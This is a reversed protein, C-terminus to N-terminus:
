KRFFVEVHQGHPLKIELLDSGSASDQVCELRGGWSGEWRAADVFATPRDLKIPEGAKSFVVLVEQDLYKRFVILAEKTNPLVHTDGYLFVMNDRRMKALEAVWNKVDTQEANLGDFQMMRRNDPDNGGPMGIEDGYYLCPVGPVTMLFGYLDKLRTYGEPGQNTIERTWGALKPDEDFRVGGDALSTYRARDQNGTMNGMTNHYGYWTLSENLQYRLNEWGDNCSKAFANVAADYLNFDFQADLLGPGMYSRILANNGYTEGIQFPLPGGNAEAKMKATLSQWFELDIHKTADHRFGDLDYNKVWYMASDTMADVVEANGFDLTPLFTDFWTTLRHSDWRETNLSGDPLYLDTAWEPHQQYVPHDEHVHNAVYDLVVNMGADHAKAIMNQFVAEDGFHRDVQSSSIPWYGHYGSFTSTVGKDWLGWAGEANQAIPSIWVTNIGLDQFYGEEIKQTIGQLDGGFHNAIPLISPDDVPENNAESGDAFRDVLAFYMVNTQRDHRTLQSASTIIEGHALPVYLDNSLHIGRCGWIRFHSREQSVAGEPVTIVFVSDNLHVYDLLQDEWYVMLSDMATESRVVLGEALVQDAYIMPTEQTPNGVVFVSNRGGQGNDKSDPNTSDLMWAGDEVVQYEYIGKRLHFKTKYTGNVAELTTASPNWGNFNGALQVVEVDPNPSVYSFRHPLESSAFLPFDYRLGNYMVTMNFLGNRTPGGVIQVMGDELRTYEAGPIEVSTIGGVEPFYDALRLLTTDRQLLWPEVGGRIAGADHVNHVPWAVESFDLGSPNASPDPVSCAALFLACVLFCFCRVTMPSVTKAGALSVVECCVTEVRGLLIKFM